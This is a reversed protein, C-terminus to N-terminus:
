TPADVCLDLDEWPPIRKIYFKNEWLEPYTAIQLLYLCEDAQM